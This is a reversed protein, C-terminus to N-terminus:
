IEIGALKCFYFGFHNGHTGTSTHWKCPVEVKLIHLFPSEDRPSHTEISICRKLFYTLIKRGIEPASIEYM